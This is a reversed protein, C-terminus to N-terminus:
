HLLHTLQVFAFVLLRLFCIPGYPDMCPVMCCQVPGFLVMRSCVPGYLAMSSRPSGGLYIYHGGIIDPFLLKLNAKPGGFLALADEIIM